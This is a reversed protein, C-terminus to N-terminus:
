TTQLNAHFTPLVLDLGTAGSVLSALHFVHDPRTQEPPARTARVDTFDVQWHCTAGEPGEARRSASHVEWGCLQLLDCLRSGIFGAGGTVVATSGSGAALASTELTFARM